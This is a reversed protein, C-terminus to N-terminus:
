QSAEKYGESLSLKAIHLQYAEEYKAKDVPNSIGFNAKAYITIANKILNNELDVKIGARKMDEMASDIIMKLYEDKATATAVIGLTQKVLSLMEDM